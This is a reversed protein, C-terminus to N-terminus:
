DLGSYLGRLASNTDAEENLGIGVLHNTVHWNYKQYTALQYSVSSLGDVIPVVIPWNYHWNYCRNLDFM